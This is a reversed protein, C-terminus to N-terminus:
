TVRMGVNSVRQIYQCILPTDVRVRLFGIYINLMLSM